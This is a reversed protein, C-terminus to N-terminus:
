TNNNQATSKRRYVVTWFYIFIAFCHFFFLSLGVFVRYKTDKHEIFDEIMLVWFSVFTIFVTPIGIKAVLPAQHWGGEYSYQELIGTLGTILLIIVVFSYWCGAFKKM